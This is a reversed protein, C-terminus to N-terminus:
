RLSVAGKQGREDARRPPDRLGGCVEESSAISGSAADGRARRPWRALSVLMWLWALSTTEPFSSANLSCGGERRQPAGAPSGRTDDDADGEAPEHAGPSAEDEDAGDATMQEASRADASSPQQAPEAADAPGVAADNASAPDPASAGNDAVDGAGLARLAAAPDVIGYGYVPDHGQADPTAYPAKRASEVLARRIEAASASRAFAMALGAVGAVVPCAASTGGFLNSVDGRDYGDSGSIDTTLSGTPASLDLAAGYNAFPASEDFRNVAGVALVYPLAAIEDAAIARNENGAAFVVVAGRGGNGQEAVRRIASALASAVPFSEAYGWSNSVVAAGSRFAFDFAAIDASLPVGENELNNLLRVCSLTCEPCTGAIGVGNNAAAAVVGACATGHANGPQDPAFSPDDDGELADRGAVLQSALDPHALDCGDDVIAVTVDRAGSSIRWAEEIRIADLYWQGGYRPDNPPLEISARKRPTFLDPAASDLERAQGLRAALAAGDEHREGAVLYIGLARSLERVPRLRLQRLRERAARAGRLGSRLQVVAHPGVQAHFSRGAARLVLWERGREFRGTRSFAIWRAGDRYGDLAGRGQRDSAVDARASHVSAWAFLGPILALAIGMKKVLVKVKM